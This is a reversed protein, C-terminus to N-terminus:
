AEEQKSRAQWGYWAMQMLQRQQMAPTEIEILRQRWEREFWEEFKQRELVDKDSM